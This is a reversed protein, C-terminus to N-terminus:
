PIVRPHPFNKKAIIIRAEDFRLHDLHSGDNDNGGAQSPTGFQDADNREARGSGIGGLIM